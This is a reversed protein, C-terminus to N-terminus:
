KGVRREESRALPNFLNEQLIARAFLVSAIAASTISLSFQYLEPVLSTLVGLAIIVGGPFIKGARKHRKPWLIILSAIFYSYSIFFSAQGLSTLKYILRGEDTVDVGVYLARDFMFPIIVLSYAVGFVLAAVVWWRKWAGAFHTVLGFLTIGAYGIGLAIGNFYPAPDLGGLAVLRTTFASTGWFVVSAFFLSALQNVRNRPAQWLVLFFMALGVVISTASFTMAILSINPVNQLM